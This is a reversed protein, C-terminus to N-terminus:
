ASLCLRDLFRKRDLGHGQVQQALGLGGGAELVAALAGAPVEVIEVAAAM